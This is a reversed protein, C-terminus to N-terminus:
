FKIVYLKRKGSHTSDIMITQEDVFRPHLDCRTEGRYRLPEYFEGILKKENKEFDYIYLSKMRRKDPYTDFVMKKGLVNPHGDGLNDIKSKGLVLRLSTNVDIKYYKDGYEKDRMYSVINDNDIWFCHSVMDDDALCTTKKTNFNYVMLADFKKGDFFWRHLFIFKEGNPSIMIHNVWHVTNEMSKKYHCNIIEDISLLLSSKKTKLNLFYVGDNRIDYLDIYTSLNRYCYDPRLFKIKHFNISLAYNDYVDYIPYDIVTVSLSAVNVVKSIFRNKKISFDNFIFNQNDIWMLKCGQQWNYARTHLKLLVRNERLGFLVVTIFSNRDPKKFSENLTEQYILFDKSANVPSKDYYGFFSTMKESCPISEVSAGEYIKFRYPKPNILSLFFDYNYKIFRKLVPKKQLFDLIRRKM